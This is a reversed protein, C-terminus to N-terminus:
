SQMRSVINKITLMQPDLENKVQTKILVECEFVRHAEDPISVQGQLGRFNTEQLLTM